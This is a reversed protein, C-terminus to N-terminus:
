RPPARKVEAHRRFAAITNTDPHHRLPPTGMASSTPIWRVGRRVILWPVRAMPIPSSKSLDITPGLDFRKVVADCLCPAVRDQDRCGPLNRRSLEEAFARSLPDPINLEQQDAFSFGVETSGYESCVVCLVTDAKPGWVYFARFLSASDLGPGSIRGVRRGDEYFTATIYSLGVHVAATRKGLSSRELARSCASSVVLLAVFCCVGFSNL